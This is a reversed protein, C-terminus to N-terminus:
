INKTFRSTGFEKQSHEPSGQNPSSLYISLYISLDISLNTSQSISQYRYTLSMTHSKFM